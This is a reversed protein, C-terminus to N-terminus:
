DGFIVQLIGSAELLLERKGRCFYGVERQVFTHYKKKSPFFDKRLNKYQFASYAMDYTQHGATILVTQVEVNIHRLRGVEGTYICTIDWFLEFTNFLSAKM